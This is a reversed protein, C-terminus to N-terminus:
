KNNQVPLADILISGTQSRSNGHLMLDLAAAAVPALRLGKIDDSPIAASTALTWVSDDVFRVVTYGETTLVAGTLDILEQQKSWPLYLDHEFNQKPIGVDSYQRVRDLLEVSAYTGGIMGGLAVAEETPARSGMFWRTTHGRNQYKVGNDVEVDGANIAQWASEAGLPRTSPLRLDARASVNGLPLAWVGGIKHAPLYHNEILQRVRSQSVGLIGAAETVSVPHLLVTM